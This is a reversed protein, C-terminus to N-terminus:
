RDKLVFRSALGAGLAFAILLTPTVQKLAGKLEEFTFPHVPAPAPPPGPDPAVMPASAGFVHPYAYAPHMM